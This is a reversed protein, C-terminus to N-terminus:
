KIDPHAKFTELHQAALTRSPALFIIKSSPFNSLRNDALMMAIATKGLGTPLIVLTNGKLVTELISKQYLRPEFDRLM